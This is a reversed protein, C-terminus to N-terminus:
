LQANVIDYYVSGLSTSYRLTVKVPVGGRGGGPKEKVRQARMHPEERDRHSEM